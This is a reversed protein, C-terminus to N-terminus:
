RAFLLPDIDLVLVCLADAAVIFYWYMGNVTVDVLHKEEVPGRLLIALIVFNEGCGILGHATHMGLVTWFVSGHAHSDWSFPLHQFELFRLSVFALGCVTALSLGWRMGSLSGRKAARSAIEMPWCSLLLAALGAAALQMAPWGIATPPWITAHDKLYYYSVFLLAFVTSEIAILCVVGWWLPDRSGFATLPLDGVELQATTSLRPEPPTRTDDDGKASVEDRTRAPQEDALEEAHPRSPWYWGILALGTLAGGLVVGWPTFIAVIFTVGTGAAVALPWLTPGPLETRHDPEADLLGTVLLERRDSRLGFVVPQQETQTWLAYRGAVTPPELFAYSPPPSSTAWELTDADWPNPGAVVGRRRSWILNVLVVSVGLALVGAGITALMNLSGWGRDAAYTYIRRPMGALGLIHLPFFVLNFGLFILGFSWRGLAESMLRGTWKPYWYYIGGILPFVSGGILVYHLHAVVFYTDHVQLNLPVSALMVGTLGGILFVGFFGLAFLMPTALRISGGWLTAIWCFFQVGTPLSILISAATFLNSGLAPIGTAFMHHAWVGFGFFATAVLALVLAPYGFIQRRTFTILLSSLIGLAPIFIIYVEPHGFFWFLHQWLLVDGGEGYNFFHTGILRDTALMASGLMIAPMAFVIMVSQILMAWVFLPMRDLSMGPARQKLITAILSVAGALSSLETFTVLQAWIDARKGAGYDPGALPVYSFWGADPAMNLFLSVYLLLGGILYTYYAFATLRPFALNRTGLMLPVLYIGLGSMVPVAFLFMMTSGHTTFVQNYLDPGLLDQDARALQLRMLLAELGGLLFFVLATVLFRLGLATHSVDSLFGRVGRLPNSWTRELRQRMQEVRLAHAEDRRPVDAARADDAALESM